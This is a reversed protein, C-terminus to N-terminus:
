HKFIKEKWKRTPIIGKYKSGLELNYKEGLGFDKATEM